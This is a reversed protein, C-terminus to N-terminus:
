DLRLNRYNQKFQTDLFNFVDEQDTKSVLEWDKQFYKKSFKKKIKFPSVFTRALNEYEGTFTSAINDVAKKNPMKVVYLSSTVDVGGFPFEFGSRSAYLNANTSFSIFDSLGTDAHNNMDVFM